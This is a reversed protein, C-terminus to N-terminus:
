FTPRTQLLTFLTAIFGGLIAILIGAMWLITRNEMKHMEVKLESMEVKLDKLDEKTALHKLETAVAREVLMPVTKEVTADLRLDVTNEVAREVKQAKERPISLAVAITDSLNITATNM